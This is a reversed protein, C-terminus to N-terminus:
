GAQKADRRFRARDKRIVQLWAQLRASWRPDDASPATPAPPLFMSTVREGRAYDGLERGLHEYGGLRDLYVRCAEEAKGAKLYHYIAEEILNLLAAQAPLSRQPRGRLPVAGRTRVAGRVAVRFQGPGVQRQLYEAAGLHIQLADEKLATDFYHGVAPHVSYQAAAGEAQHEQVLQLDVLRSLVQPLRNGSMSVEHFREVMDPQLLLDALTERDLPRGMLSVVKMALMEDPELSDEYSALIRSLRTMEYDLRAGGGVQTLPPLKDSWTVDGGCCVRLLGSLVALSLAHRGYEEAVRDIQADTGCVGRARMLGRAAEPPLDGFRVPVYGSGEWESLDALPFRSTVVVWTGSRHTSAWQLFQRVLGADERCRGLGDRERQIRELGDLVIL